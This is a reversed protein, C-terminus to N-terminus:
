VAFLKTISYLGAFTGVMFLESHAFNLLQLVGYVMTYGLAIMAYLAGLTIGTTALRVWTSLNQECVGSAIGIALAGGCVVLVLGWRVASRGVQSPARRTRTDTAVAM